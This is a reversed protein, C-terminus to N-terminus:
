RASRRVPTISPRDSRAAAVKALLTWALREAEDLLLEDVTGRLRIVTGADGDRSLLLEGEAIATPSSHCIGGQPDAPLLGGLTTDDHHTCWPACRARGTPALTTSNGM